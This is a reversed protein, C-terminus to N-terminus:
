RRILRRLRSRRKQHALYSESATYEPPLLYKGRQDFERDGKITVTRILRIIRWCIFAMWVAYVPAIITWGLVVPVGGAWNAAIMVFMVLFLPGFISLPRWQYALDHDVWRRVRRYYETHAPRRMM